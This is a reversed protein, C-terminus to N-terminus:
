GNKLYPVSEDQEKIRSKMETFLKQQLEKTGSMMTDLYVNEAKLYDVVKTSDAGQKFYDVMWYYNDTVTDGHMIRQYPKVDAVPPRANLWVNTQSIAQSNFGIASFLLVIQISSKNFM